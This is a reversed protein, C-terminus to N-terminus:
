RGVSCRKSRRLLGLYLSCHGELWVVKAEVGARKLGEVFGRQVAWPLARDRTAGTYRM